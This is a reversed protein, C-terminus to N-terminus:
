LSCSASLPTSRDTRDPDTSPAARVWRRPCSWRPGCEPWAAPVRRHVPWPPGPVVHDPLRMFNSDASGPPGPCDVRGHVLQQGPPLIEDQQSLQQMQPRRAARRASSNNVRNSNTPHRQDAQESKNTPPLAAHRSHNRPSNGPKQIEKQKQKQIFGRVVPNSGPWDPLPNHRVTRPSTESPTSWITSWETNPPPRNNPQDPPHHDSLPFTIRASPVAQHLQSASLHPLVPQLNGKHPRIKNGNGHRVVGVLERYRRAPVGFVSALKATTTNAIVSIGTVQGRPLGGIISGYAADSVTFVRLDQQDRQRPSRGGIFQFVGTEAQAVAGLGVMLAAALLVGRASLHLRRRRGRRSRRLVDQWDVRRGAAGPAGARASGSAADIENM